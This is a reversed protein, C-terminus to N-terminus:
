GEGESEPSEFPADGIEEAIIRTIGRLTRASTHCKACESADQASLIGGLLFLVLLLTLLLVGKPRANRGRM